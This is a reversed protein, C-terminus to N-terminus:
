WSVQGGLSALRDEMGRKVRFSLICAGTPEYILVATCLTQTRREMYGWRQDEAEEPGESALRGGNGRRVPTQKRTKILCCVWTGHEM